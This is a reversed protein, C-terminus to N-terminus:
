ETAVSFFVARIKGNQKELRWRNRKIGGRELQRIRSAVNAREAAVTKLEQLSHWEGDSLASYLDHIASGARYPNGNTLVANNQLEDQHSSGRWILLAKAALAKGRQKIQSENWCDVVLMSKSLQYNSQKYGPVSDFGDRKEAFSRNSLEPNYNTLTLNGPTDIWHDYVTQWNSGLDNRWQETLTQPMVHEVQASTVVPMEKHGFSKELEALAAAGYRDYLPFEPFSEIFRDDSPFGREFYFTDLDSVPDNKVANCASM